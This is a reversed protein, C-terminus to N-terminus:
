KKEDLKKLAEEARRNLNKSGNRTLNFVKSAQRNAGLLRVSKFQEKAMQELEEAEITFYGDFRNKLDPLTAVYKLEAFIAEGKNPTFALTTGPALKVDGTCSLIM